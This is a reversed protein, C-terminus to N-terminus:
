AAEVRVPHAPGADRGDAGSPLFAGATRLATEPM